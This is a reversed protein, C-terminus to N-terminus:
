AEAESDSSLKKLYYECILRNSTLILLQGDNSYLSYKGPKIEIIKM